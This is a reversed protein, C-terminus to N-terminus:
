KKEQVSDAFDRFLPMGYDAVITTKESLMKEAAELKRLFLALKPDKRYIELHKLAETEAAGRIKAAETEAQAIMKGRELRAAEEIESAKQKAEEMMVAAQQEYESKQRIFVAQTTRAPLELRDLGTSQIDIGFLNKSKKQVETFLRTELGALSHSSGAKFIDAFSLSSLATRLEEQVVAGLKQRAQDPSTGIRTRFLEADGIRWHAFARVILTKGDATLMESLPTEYIQTRLDFAAIRDIPWPYKFHLGPETILGLPKEFRTLMVSQHEGVQYFCSYFIFLLLIGFLLGFFKFLEMRGAPPQKGTENM